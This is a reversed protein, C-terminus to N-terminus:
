TLPFTTWLVRGIISHIEILGFNRSDISNKKNSGMVFFNNKPIIYKRNGEKFLSSLTDNSKELDYASELFSDRFYNRENMDFLYQSGVWVLHNEDIYLTDGELAVIRKVLIKKIHPEYFVIVDNKQPRRVPPTISFFSHKKAPYRVGFSIKEVVALEGSYIDPSMSNKEVIYFDFIFVKLFIAIVLSYFTTKFILLLNRKVSGQDMSLKSSAKVM